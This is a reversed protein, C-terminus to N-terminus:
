IVGAAMELLKRHVVGLRLQVLAGNTLLRASKVTVHDVVDFPLRRTQYFDSNHISQIPIRGIILNEKKLVVVENIM